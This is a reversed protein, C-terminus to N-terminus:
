SAFQIMPDRDVMSYHGNADPVAAPYGPVTWGISTDSNTCPVTKVPYTGAAVGALCQQNAANILVDRSNNWRLDWRQTPDTPSCTATSVAHSVPNAAACLGNVRITGDAKLQFTQNWAGSNSCSWGGLPTGINMSGAYLDLCAKTSISQILGPVSRDPQTTAANATLSLLGAAGAAAAMLVLPATRRLQYTM